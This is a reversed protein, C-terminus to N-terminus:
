KVSVWLDGGAGHIARLLPVIAYELVINQLRVCGHTPYWGQYPALPDPAGSGGGHMMIGARGLASEQGQQEILEIAFRGYAAFISWPDVGEISPIINGCKYLGPVTDSGTIQYGPGNVGQTHAGISQHLEGDYRVPYLDGQATWLKGVNDAIVMHYDHPAMLHKIDGPAPKIPPRTLPHPTMRQASAAALNLAHQTFNSM